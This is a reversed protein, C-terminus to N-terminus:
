ARRALRGDPGAIVICAARWIIDRASTVQTPNGPIRFSRMLVLEPTPKFDFDALCHTHGHAAPAAPTCSTRCATRSRWPPCAAPPRSGPQRQARRCAPANTLARGGARRAPLAAGGDSCRCRPRETCGSDEPDSDRLEGSLQYGSSGAPCNISGDTRAQRTHKSAEPLHWSIRLPM